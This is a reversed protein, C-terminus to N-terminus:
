VPVVRARVERVFEKAYENIKQARWRMWAPDHYDRPPSQGNHESAYAQRTYDDYGMAAHPWALRDDLQVGDIDYSDIAELVLDLLFKRAAPHLPNMWVFGNPAVENGNIDRSLWDPKQQRLHNLTSQHAVMFGYEFWAVTVLGNRHAEILMEQLLDRPTKNVGRGLTPNRDIGIARTLVESPFQTYGNKWVEVYVTNMGIEALRRMTAATDDPTAVAHNATTTVWTGRLEAARATPDHPTACATAFLIITAIIACRARWPVIM